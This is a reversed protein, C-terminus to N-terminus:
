TLQNKKNVPLFFTLCKNKEVKLHGFFILGKM